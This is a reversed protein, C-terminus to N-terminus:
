LTKSGSNKMTVASAIQGLLVENTWSPSYHLAFVTQVSVFREAAIHYTDDM